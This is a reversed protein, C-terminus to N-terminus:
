DSDDPDYLRVKRNPDYEKMMTSGANDQELVRIKANPDLDKVSAGEVEKNGPMQDLVCLLRMSCEECVNCTHWQGDQIAPNPRSWWFITFDQKFGGESRPNYYGAEFMENPVAKQLEFYGGEGDHTTVTTEFYQKPVVGRDVVRITAGDELPFSEKEGAVDEIPVLREYTGSIKVQTFDDDRSLVESYMAVRFEVGDDPRISDGPGLSGNEFTPTNAAQVVGGGDISGGSDLANGIVNSPGGGGSVEGGGAGNPGLTGSTCSWLCAVAM